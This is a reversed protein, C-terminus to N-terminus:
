AAGEDDDLRDGPTGVATSRDLGGIAGASGSDMATAVSSSIAPSKDEFEHGGLRRVLEARLEYNAAAMRLLTDASPTTRGQVWAKATAVSGQAARAANKAAHRPWVARLLESVLPEAISIQASM